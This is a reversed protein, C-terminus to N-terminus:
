TDCCCLSGVHFNGANIGKKKGELETIEVPQQTWGVLHQQPLDGVGIALSLVCLETIINILQVGLNPLYVVV